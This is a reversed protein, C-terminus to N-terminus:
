APGSSRSVARTGGLLGLRVKLLVSLAAPGDRWTLKKGQERSRAKYVIPVEFPRVGARLLKATLESDAAFGDSRIQLDRYLGVPLIKFCTHMDSIWANFLFNAFFTTARNAIVYWFSYAAQSGFVRTGYVVTAEGDLVPQVLGPLQEPPYELDADYVVLWDGTAHSVATRVAAGKGRNAPHTLVRVRPDQVAALAAATGDTSGDDVVVVEVACPFDVELLRKLALGVTAEEDYVPVVVSLKV